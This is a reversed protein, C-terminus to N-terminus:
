HASTPDFQAEGFEIRSEFRDASVFLECVNHELECGFRLLQSPLSWGNIQDCAFLSLGCIGFFHTGSSIGAANSSANFFATSSVVPARAFSNSSLFVAFAANARSPSMLIGGSISTM